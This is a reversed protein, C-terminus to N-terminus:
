SHAGTPMPASLLTCIIKAVLSLMPHRNDPTRHGIDDNLLTVVVFEDALLRFDDGRNQKLVACFVDSMPCRVDSLYIM